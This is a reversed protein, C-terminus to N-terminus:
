LVTRAIQAPAEELGRHVGALVGDVRLAVLVGLFAEAALAPGLDGLDFQGAPEGLRDPVHEGAVLRERRCAGTKRRAAQRTENPNRWRLVGGMEGLEGMVPSLSTLATAVVVAAPGLLGVAVGWKVGAWM